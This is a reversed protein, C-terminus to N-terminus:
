LKSGPLLFALILISSPFSYHPDIFQHRSLFLSSAQCSIDLTSSISSTFKFLVTNPGRHDCLRAMKVRGQALEVCDMGVCCTDLIWKLLVREQSFKDNATEIWYTIEFKEM